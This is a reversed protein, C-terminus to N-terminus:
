HRSDDLTARAQTYEDATLEGRAFRERLIALARDGAGAEQAPTEPYRSWVGGMSRILLVILTVAVLLMLFMGVWGLAGMGHDYGYMMEVVELPDTFPSYADAVFGM